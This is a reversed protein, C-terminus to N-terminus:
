IANVIINKENNVHWKLLGSMKSDILVRTATSIGNADDGFVEIPIGLGALEKSRSDSLENKIREEIRAMFEAYSKRHQMYPVLEGGAKNILVMVSLVGDNRVTDLRASAALGVLLSAIETESPPKKKLFDFM